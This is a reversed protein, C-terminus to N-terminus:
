LRKKTAGNKGNVSDPYSQSFTVKKIKQNTKCSVDKQKNETQVRYTYRYM